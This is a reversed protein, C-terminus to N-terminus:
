NLVKNLKNNIRRDHGRVIFWLVWIPAMSAICMWLLVEGYQNLQMYVSGAVIPIASLIFAIIYHTKVSM